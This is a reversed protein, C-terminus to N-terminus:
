FLVEEKYKPLTNLLNTLRPHLSDAYDKLFGWMGYWCDDESFYGNGLDLMKAELPTLQFPGAVHKQDGGLHEYIDIYWPDVYEYIPLTSVEHIGVEEELRYINLDYDFITGNSM